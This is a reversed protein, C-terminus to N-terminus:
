TLLRPFETQHEPPSHLCRVALQSNTNDPACQMQYGCPAAGRPCSSATTTATSVSTTHKSIKRLVQGHTRSMQSKLTDLVRHLKSVEKWVAHVDISKAEGKLKLCGDLFEDINVEGSGDDDILRFLLALDDSSLGLTQFLGQVQVNQFHAEMEAWSVTGSRDEDMEHFLERMSCAWKINNERERQIIFDRQGKATEVANDVFVGTIINLVALLVFAIYFMFLYLAGLGVEKLPGAVEGWDIGGLMSLILYYVTSSLSGFMTRLTDFMEDQEVEDGIKRYLQRTHESATQTFCIAFVYLIITLMVLAWCLSKISDAIMLALLSLEKFFRFVRFIRIIRLMKITKLTPGVSSAGGGIQAMIFDIISLGVLVFDFINWNKDDSTFYEMGLLKMRLLLEGLFFMSCFDGATTMWADEKDHTTMHETTIGILLSNLLIMGACAFDFTPHEIIKRLMTDPKKPRLPKPVTVTTDSSTRGTMVTDLKSMTRRIDGLISKGRTHTHEADDATGSSNNGPHVKTFLDSALSPTAQDEEDAMYKAPRGAAHLSAVSPRARPRPSAKKGGGKKCTTLTYGLSDIEDVIQGIVEEQLYNLINQGMTKMCAELREERALLAHFIEDLTKPMTEQGQEAAKGYPSTCIRRQHIGWVEEELVQGKSPSSSRDKGAPSSGNLQGSLQPHGGSHGHLTPSVATAQNPTTPLVSTNPVLMGRAVVM